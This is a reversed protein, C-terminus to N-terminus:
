EAILQAGVYDWWWVCCYSGPGNCPVMCICRRRRRALTAGSGAFDHVAHPEPHPQENFLVMEPVLGPHIKDLFDENRALIYHVVAAYHEQSEIGYANIDESEPAVRVEVFRGQYEGRRWMVVVSFPEITSMPRGEPAGQGCVCKKKDDQIAETAQPPERRVRM